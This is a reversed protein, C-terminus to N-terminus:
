RCGTRCLFDIRGFNTAISCMWAVLWIRWFKRNMDESGRKKINGRVFSLPVPRFGTILRKVTNVRSVGEERWINVQGRGVRQCKKMLPWLRRAPYSVETKESYVLKFGANTAEGTWYVDMGSRINGPFVGIKDFVSKRVFLNGGKAVGRNEVSEKMKVNSISDFMEAASKKKGLFIFAVKGGVLDASEERMKGVGREIWERCAFCNADIMAIIEGKAVGIAKNRAAYPSAVSNEELYTVPYKRIVDPTEDTSGNDVVLIEFRDKPYTQALLAEICKAIREPSNRVPVVISVFPVSTAYNLNIPQM